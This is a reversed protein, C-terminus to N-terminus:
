ATEGAQRSVISPGYRGASIGGSSVGAIGSVMTGCRAALMSLRADHTAAQTVRAM